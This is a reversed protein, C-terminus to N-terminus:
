PQQPCGTNSPNGPPGTHSHNKDGCGKGPRTGYEQGAASRGDAAPAPAAVTPRQPSAASPAVSGSASGGTAGARVAKKAKKAKKGKTAKKAKKAHHHVSAAAKVHGTAAVAGGVGFVLLSLVLLVSTLRARL